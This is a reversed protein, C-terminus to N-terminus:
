LPRTLHRDPPSTDHWPPSPCARYAYGPPSPKLSFPNDVNIQETTSRTRRIGTTLVSDRSSFKPVSNSLHSTATRGRTRHFGCIPLKERLGSTSTTKGNAAAPNKCSPKWVEYGDDRKVLGVRNRKTHGKNHNYSRRNEKQQWTSAGNESHRRPFRASRLDNRGPHRRPPSRCLKRQKEAVLAKAKREGRPDAM